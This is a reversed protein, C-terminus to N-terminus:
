YSFFFILDIGAREVRRQTLRNAVSTTEPSGQVNARLFKALQYEMMFETFSRDGFQQRFQVFTKDNVQKGLTVGGATEGTDPDSTTIQFLDVDLAKGVASGLSQAVFGSAIGAATEALSARQGTGLDNVNQNFVILSLIDSEDLPPDSSLALKPASATGTVRVTATVGTNPILRDASVDITPNIEPLGDFRLTGDRRVTFRRGQFEYFGRVTNATGRITMPADPQKQINLDAGATVNINGIKAATPGPRLDNGRVVFDDPATFHVNMALPAMAGAESGATTPAPANPQPTGIARGQAFAARTAQHAGKDSKAVEAASVVPALAETSYPNSMMLLVRDLELRGGPLRINGEARPHRFDGSLRVDTDVAIKGLENDMLKFARSKVSINVAGVTAAHVALDGEITMPSGNSDAIQLRPIHVRDPELEIRTTLGSYRTGAQPVAFAANDIAVYGNLHPDEGSGMVTVDAQVTGTANTVQNTFGQVIGLGISSSQIRVNIQDTGSPAIHGTVGPPNPKFASLPATGKATLEVGPQQVLRADLTAVENRYGGDATFSQYKFQQFGGNQIEVHGTVDPAKADGSITANANLTGSFGRSQMAVQEVQAVDVNQAHVSVGESSPTDGLSFAGSIALSQNGNVLRVDQLQVRDSGYQIAANSGPPTQWQVGQTRFALSPLHIEQHDPQFIVSGAADLERVGNNKQKEDAAIQADAGSPAQAAHAQFALTQDAYTTDATLANIHVGGVDVFTGTTQAHLRTHAAELKPLTADFQSTVALAKNLQYAINSANLAGAAQLSSANGTIKADVTAMGSIPQNVIKGIVTLDTMSAHLTVNSQGNEDLAIPGSATLDVVPGKVTAQRLNGRRNAYQGEVDATDVRFGAVDTQALTVKGDVTFAEPTIPATLNAVSVVADVTGNVQGAYRPNGAIKSPDFGQFAGNARGQVGNNALHADFVLQPITGGSIQTNTVTGTADLKMRDSTVGSATFDVQANIRSDYDPKDLAAVHFAHGVAALNVDSVAGRAGYTLSQIGGRRTSIVSVQATTGSAISAGPVTSAALVASTDITTTSGTQGKVHYLQANLDSQVRPANLTPPLQSLNVHSAVGTLDFQVPQRTAAPVVITGKATATGGYAAGRGDLGIRRGNADAAVKVDSARYGSAIVKPADVSVHGRVRDLAPASAPATAMKLDFTAHAAIHSTQSADKLLPALNLDQVTVDGRAAYDPALVDATVRGSIAGAESKGNLMLQLANQKGQAKLDVSPHLAYGQVSPLVGAFEPLSLRPASITVRLDPDGPYDAVIGDVTATSDATQLTLKEVNLDDNRSGLRGTLNKVTLTPEVAGFSFQNLTVSYHVPEYAYSGKANLAAIQKPLTYATSPARDDIQVRGDVIEIDPMTMPRGPGQRNAEQRERKVLSSVNWGSADRRLLIFPQELRIRRVTIGSSILEAISYKVELRKFAIVREGNVSISVDELQIGYFLDGGLRGISVNGNVYQNAERVVFKRLWDKFLPTQSTMLALVIIGLVITAVLAVVRLSRRLYKRVASARKQLM